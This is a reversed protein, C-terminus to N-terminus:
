LAEFEQIQGPLVITGSYGADERREDLCVSYCTAKSYDPGAMRKFVVTGDGFKTQVRDGKEFETKM